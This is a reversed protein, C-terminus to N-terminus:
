LRSVTIGGDASINALTGCADETMASLVDTVQFPISELAARAIHRKDHGFDLGVISAKADLKWWPAGIGSFGPILYVSEASELSEALADIERFDEVIGLKEKLWGLTSGCSVIIGELAYDTREGSSWCLTSVMGNSSTIRKDGVNMLISSGTGLTIKADGKRFLGQGFAAAHSDGIAAGIPLPRKFLGNLTTTGFGADSARVEPLNLGKLGLFDIIERDWEFRSIDFLMTRGANTRDTAYVTANTLSRILWTDVTGFYVDKKSIASRLNEEDALVAIKTGSFYPDIILGTRESILSSFSADKSLSKCYEASRKCQWVVIPAVPNGQKDWLLFSERQNSIGITKINERSIGAEELRALAGKAAEYVSKLLANPDIEVYGPKPYDIKYDKTCSALLEGERSFVVAKSGSTGQDIVLIATKEM